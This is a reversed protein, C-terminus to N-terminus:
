EGKNEAFSSLADGTLRYITWEELPMAGLSLYFDISPRNWDLCCWELRGCGREVTIRALERILAKGHGRGRYGPRVFLDELYIGARGLFTSFNHFFLAFGVEVGNEMAFIVEAKEKKFIWECLLEETAVVDDSMKEYEALAKIFDLILAVDSETAFRFETNSM